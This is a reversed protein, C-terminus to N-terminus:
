FLVQLCFSARLPLTQPIKVLQILLAVHGKIKSGVRICVSDSHNKLNHLFVFVFYHCMRNLKVNVEVM